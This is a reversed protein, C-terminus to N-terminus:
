VASPSCVRPCTCGFFTWQDVLFGTEPSLFKGEWLASALCSSLFNSAGKAISAKRKRLWPIKHRLGAWAGGLPCKANGSLKSQWLGTTTSPPNKSYWAPVLWPHQEIDEVCLVAQKRWLLSNNSGAHYYHWASFDQEWGTSQLRVQIDHDHRPAKVFHMPGTRQLESTITKLHGWPKTKQKNKWNRTSTRYFGCSLLIQRRSQKLDVTWHYSTWECLQAAMIGM